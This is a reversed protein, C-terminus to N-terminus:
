VSCSSFFILCYESAISSELSSASSCGTSYSLSSDGSSFGSGATTCAYLSAAAFALAFAFARALLFASLSAFSLCLFSLCLFFLSFGDASAQPSASESLPQSVPPFVFLVSVTSSTGAVWYRGFRIMSGAEVSAVVGITSISCSGSGAVELTTPYCISRSTCDETAFGSGEGSSAAMRFLDASSSCSLCISIARWAM